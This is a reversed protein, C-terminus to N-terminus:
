DKLLKKTPIEILKEPFDDSFAAVATFSNEIDDYLRCCVDSRPATIKCDKRYFRLYRLDGENTLKFFSERLVWIEHIDLNSLEEPTALRSISGPRIVRNDLTDAGVPGDSLACLVHTKSHSISFHLDPNEAFFPKGRLLRKIAPLTGGKSRLYDNYAAALLSVGLASGRNESLPPYLADKENIGRIDSYYIKM